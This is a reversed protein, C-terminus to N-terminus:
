GVDEGMAARVIDDGQEDWMETPMTLTLTGKGFKVTTNNGFTSESMATVKPIFFRTFTHEGAMTVMFGRKCQQFGTEEQKLTYRM